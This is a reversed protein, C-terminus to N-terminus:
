DHPYHALCTSNKALALDWQLQIPLIQSRKMEFLGPLERAIVHRM